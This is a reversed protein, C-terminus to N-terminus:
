LAPLAGAVYIREMEMVIPGMNMKGSKLSGNADLVGAIRIPGLDLRAAVGDPGTGEIKVRVETFATPNDAIWDVLTMEAGAEPAALFDRLALMQGLTSTAERPELTTEFAKSQLTGSVQWGEDEGPDLKLHTTLEGNEVAIEIENILRGDPSSYQVTYTDSAMLTQQDVPVLLSLTEQVKTDGDDDLTLTMRVVGTPRGGIKVATVEQYYPQAAAEGLELHDVLGRFVREFTKGYGTEDQQCFVSAGGGAVASLQKIQGALAGQPSKVRYIWDLALYSHSGFVGADLRQIATAEIEGYAKAVAEFTRASIAQHAAALDHGTPYIWCEAPSDTGLGLHLYYDGGDTLVPKQLVEAAVRTRFKGDSSALWREELPEAERALLKEFWDPDRPPPIEAEATTPAAEGAPKQADSQAGTGASFALTSVLISCITPLHIM